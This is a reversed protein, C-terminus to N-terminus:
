RSCEFHTLAQKGAVSQAMPVDSPLGTNPLPGANVYQAFFVGM